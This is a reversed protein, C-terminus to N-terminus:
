VPIKEGQKLGSINEEFKPLLRGSGFLFTLPSSNDVTEVLEGGEGNVRLEYTLSVIKEKEIVM